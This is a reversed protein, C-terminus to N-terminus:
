LTAWARGIESMGDGAQNILFGPRAMFYAYRHVVASAELWPIIVRLFNKIEEDTGSPGIETIWIPRGGAIDRAANVHSKFYNINTAKDYRGYM